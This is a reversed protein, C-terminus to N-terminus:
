KSSALVERAITAEPLDPNRKLADAFVAQGQQRAGNKAYAM